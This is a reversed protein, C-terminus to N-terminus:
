LILIKSFRGKDTDVSVIYNGKSNSKFYTKLYQTNSPLESYIQKGSIDYVSLAMIQSNGGTNILLESTSNNYRIQPESLVYEDDSLSNATIPETFTIFFRNEYEGAEVISEFDTDNIQTYVDDVTDHIFVNIDEEFNELSNLSISFNGTEGLFVGLPYTKTDEFVGVGQIVCRTDGIMWNMDNPFNDWNIADWGYDFGDTASNDSTFGLLIQRVAGDPATFDLRVRQIVLEQANTFTGFLFALFLLAFLRKSLKQSTMLLNM